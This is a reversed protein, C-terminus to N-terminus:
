ISDWQDRAAYFPVGDSRIAEFLFRNSPERLRPSSSSDHVEGLQILSRYVQKVELTDGERHDRSEDIIREKASLFILERNYGEGVKNKYIGRKYM